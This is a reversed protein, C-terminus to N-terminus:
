FTGREMNIKWDNVKARLKYFTEECRCTFIISKYGEPFIKMWTPIAMTVPFGGKINFVVEKNKEYVFRPHLTITSRENEQTRKWNLLCEDYGDRQLWIFTKCGVQWKRQYNIKFLWLVFVRHTQNGCGKQFVCM